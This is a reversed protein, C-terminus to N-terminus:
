AAYKVLPVGCEACTNFGERYPCHCQPCYSVADAEGAPGRTANFALGLSRLDSTAKGLKAVFICVAITELFMFLGAAPTMSMLGQLFTTFLFFYTVKRSARPALNHRALFKNLEDAYGGWVRLAWFINYLPIFLYGVAKGPSIETKGDQLKKWLHHTFMMLIVMGAIVAVVAMVAMSEREAAPTSPDSMKMFGVMQIWYAILVPWFWLHPFRRPQGTTVSQVLASVPLPIPTAHALRAAAANRGEAQLFEGCHKCKIAGDQIEEACFPCKKM